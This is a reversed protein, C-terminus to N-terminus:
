LIKNSIQVFPPDRPYPRAYLGYTLLPKNLHYSILQTQPEEISFYWEKHDILENNNSMLSPYVYKTSFNAKIQIFEFSTKSNSNPFTLCQKRENSECRVLACFEEAWPYLGDRTRNSIILYYTENNKFEMDKLSYNVQCCLGNHCKIIMDNSKNLLYQSVNTLSMNSYVYERGNSDDSFSDFSILKRNTSCNVKAKSSVPIDAILLKPIGDPKNSYIVSGSDSSYIGSGVSGVKLLNSFNFIKIM